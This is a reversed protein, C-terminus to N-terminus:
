YEVRFGLEIMISAAYGANRFSPFYMRDMERRPVNVDTSHAYWVTVAKDETYENGILAPYGEDVLKKVLVQVLANYATSGQTYDM